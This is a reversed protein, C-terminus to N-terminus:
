KYDAHNFKLAKLKPIERIYKCLTLTMNWKTFQNIFM